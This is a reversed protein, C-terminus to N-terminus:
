AAGARSALWHEYRAKSILLKKGVRVCARAVGNEERHRLQWRLLNLTLINPFASVLQDVTYLDDLAVAPQEVAVTHM